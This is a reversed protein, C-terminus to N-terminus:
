NNVCGERARCRGRSVACYRRWLSLFFATVTSILALKVAFYLSKELFFSFFLFIFIFFIIHAARTKPLRLWSTRGPPPQVWLSKGRHQRHKVSATKPEVPAINAFSDWIVRTVAAAHCSAPKTQELRPRRVLGQRWGEDKMRWRSSINGVNEGHWFFIYFINCMYSILRNQMNSHIRFWMQRYQLM